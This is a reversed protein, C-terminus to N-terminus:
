NYISYYLRRIFKIDEVFDALSDKHSKITELTLQSDKPLVDLIAKINYNGQGFHDHKDYVSSYDGDTLHFMKPELKIFEKLYVIPDAKFANAAVIAHGIDLCFGVNINDLIYKIEEVKAGNCILGKILGHYPKNEILIRPDNIESLQRATERIDGGVGPHVIIKDAKLLDAIDQTMKILSINNVKHEKQALNLGDMYHPAHVILPINLDKWLSVHSDNTEAIIYLELYQYIGQEFLSIAENIYNENNIWLKLGLEFM